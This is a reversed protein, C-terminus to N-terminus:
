FGVMLTLFLVRVLWPASGFRGASGCRASPRRSPSAAIVARHGEPPPMSARASTAFHAAFAQVAGYLVACLMGLMALLLGGLYKVIPVMLTTQIEDLTPDMKAGTSSANDADFKITAM